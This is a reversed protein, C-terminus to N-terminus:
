RADSGAEIREAIVVVDDLRGEAVDMIFDYAEDNSWVLRRGNVGLFVILGALTLRKNGDLLPHNKALSHVLAASKEALSPYADAGLVTTRARACAAELLGADRVRVDPGIARRAIRELDRLTLYIM